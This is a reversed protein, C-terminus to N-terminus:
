PTTQAYSEAIRKITFEGEVFAAIITIAVAVLLMKLLFRVDASNFTSKGTLIAIGHSFGLMGIAGAMWFGILEVSHPLTLWLIQNLPMGVRLSSAVVLGVFAGSALMAMVATLGFTFLGSAAIFVVFLNNRLIGISTVTDLVSVSHNGRVSTISSPFAGACWFSIAFAGLWLASSVGMTKCLYYKLAPCGARYPIEQLSNQM